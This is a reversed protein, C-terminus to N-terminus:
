CAGTTVAAFPAVESGTGQLRLSKQHKEFRPFEREDCPGFFILEYVEPESGEVVVGPSGVPMGPIVLGGRASLFSPFFPSNVGFAAYLFAFLLIFRALTSHHRTYSAPQM